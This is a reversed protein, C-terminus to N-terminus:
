LGNPPLPPSDRPCAAARGRRPCGECTEDGGGGCSGRLRRGSVMVGAAMGLMALAILVATALLEIM